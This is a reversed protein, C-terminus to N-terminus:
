RSSVRGWVMSRWSMPELNKSFLMSLLFVSQWLFWRCHRLFLSTFFRVFQRGNLDGGLGIVSHSSVEARCYGFWICSVSSSSLSLRGRSERSVWAQSGDLFVLCSSRISDSMSSLASSLHGAIPKRTEMRMSSVTLRIRFCFYWHLHSFRFSIASLCPRCRRMLCVLSSFSSQLSICSHRRWSSSSCYASSFLISCWHGSLKRMKQGWLMASSPRHLAQSVM